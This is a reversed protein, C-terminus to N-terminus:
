RDCPARGSSVLRHIRGPSRCRREGSLRSRRLGEFIPVVGLRKLPQIDESSKPFDEKRIFDTLIVMRLDPGLSESEIKVIENISELKSASSVLLKTIRSTSALGIQRREIAGIRQQAAFEIHGRNLRLDRFPGRALSEAVTAAIGTAESWLTAAMRGHHNLQRPM